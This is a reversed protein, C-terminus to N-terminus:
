ESGLTGLRFAPDSKKGFCSVPGRRLAFSKGGRRRIGPKGQRQAVSSDRDRVGSAAFLNVYPAAPTQDEFSGGALQVNQLPNVCLWQFAKDRRRGTIAATMNTAGFRDFFSFSKRHISCIPAQNARRHQNQSIFELHRRRTQLKVYTDAIRKAGELYRIERTADYCTSCNRSSNRDPLL